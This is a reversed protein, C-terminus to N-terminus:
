SHWLSLYVAAANDQGGIVSSHRATEGEAEGSLNILLQSYNYILFKALAKQLSLSPPNEESIKKNGRGRVKCRNIKYNLKM